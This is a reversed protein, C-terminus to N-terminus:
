DLDVMKCSAFALRPARSTGPSWSPPMPRVCPDVQSPRRCISKANSGSTGDRLFPINAALIGQAIWTSLVASSRSANIRRHISFLKGAPKKEDDRDFTSDIQPRDLRAEDDTNTNSKIRFDVEHVKTPTYVSLSEGSRTREM